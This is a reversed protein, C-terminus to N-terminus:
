NKVGAMVRKIREGTDPHSAFIDMISGNRSEEKGGSRKDHEAQLRALMDAYSKPSIGRQRLYAVAADDAEREFDRSYKADILATPLTASLSTISLIDGTVAVILLGTGSNQLVQRMVHRYRVHGAEHALVGIIEDDNKALKVLDDTVVIIGSPLALANAGVRKSSRFEIRYGAAGPLASKMRSFLVEIEKRREEPLESPKMAMKDLMALSEKGLAIESAPPIAYAVHKAIAPIGFKIFAAILGTTIILALFALCLNKEWHNLITQFRSEGHGKLVLDLGSDNMIECLAGDSFRLSRRASGVPPSVRTETLLYIKDIEDGKLHLEDGVRSLSVTHRTSNRGDFYYGNVLSM